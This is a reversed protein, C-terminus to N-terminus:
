LPLFVLSRPSQAMSNWLILEQKQHMCQNGSLSQTALLFFHHFVFDCYALKSLVTCILCGREGSICHSRRLVCILARSCGHSSRSSNSRFPLSVIERLRDSNRGSKWKAGTLLFLTVYFSSPSSRAFSHFIFGFAFSRFLHLLLSRFVDDDGRRIM